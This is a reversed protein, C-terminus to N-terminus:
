RNPGRGQPYPQWRILNTRPLVGPNV